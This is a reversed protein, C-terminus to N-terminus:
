SNKYDEFLKQNHPAVKIQHSPYKWQLKKIHHEIAYKFQEPTMEQGVITFTKNKVDHMFDPTYRIKEGDCYAKCLGIDFFKELHEIPPLITYILQYTHFDHQAEWIGSLKAGIGPTDLKEGDGTLPGYGCDSFLQDVDLTQLLDVFDSTREMDFNTSTIDIRERGQHDTLGDFERSHRPDWLFIDFDNIPKGTFDDRIAGGALIASKYGFQQLTRLIKVSDSLVNLKTKM